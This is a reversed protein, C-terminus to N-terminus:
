IGPVGPLSLEPRSITHTFSTRPTPSSTYPDNVSIPGTDSSSFSGVSIVSLGVTQLHTLFESDPTTVTKKFRCTFFYSYLSLKQYFKVFM